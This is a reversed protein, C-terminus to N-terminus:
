RRIAVSGIIGGQPTGADTDFLTGHEVYGAKLWKRLIVKDMPINAIMWDHSINDFCGKIDGELVWQASDKRGYILFCHTIADACSREPRFGYSSRDATTEAVPSLALLYLAQMARDKMTPIGLPRSGGSAKPIMVRRLPQPRYGRRRLRSIAKTKADPTSWTAGDIGPTKKGRNETVRKVAVAKGSFSSTLLHQLAKVKGWRDERTAKVIRAQLRRVDSHCNAWNIQHWAVKAAPPACALTEANM